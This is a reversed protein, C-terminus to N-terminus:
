AGEGCKEELMSRYTARGCLVDVMRVANSRFLKSGMLTKRIWLPVRAALAVARQALVLEPLAEQGLLADYEEERGDLIAAAAFRASLVAGYIGEGTLPDVLGAADGLLYAGDEAYRPRPRTFIPIRAGRVDGLEGGRLEPAAKAFKALKGKLDPAKPNFSGMGVAFVDRRPFIWAYGERICGLHFVARTREEASLDSRM